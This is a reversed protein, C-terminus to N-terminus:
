FPLLDMGAHALVFSPLCQPATFASICTQAGSRSVCIDTTSGSIQQPVVFNIQTDQAYLIPAPFGGVTLTTGGLQAPVFGNANVQFPVGVAPGLNSGFLTAIAGRVAPAFDYNAGSALCSPAPLGQPM